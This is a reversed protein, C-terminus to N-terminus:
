VGGRAACATSDARADSNSVGAAAGGNRRAAAPPRGVKRAPILIGDRRFKAIRGAVARATRGLSRAMEPRSASAAHTRVYESEGPQWIRHPGVTPLKGSQLFALLRRLGANAILYVVRQEIAMIEAVRAAPLHQVYLLLLAQKQRDTLVTITWDDGMARALDLIITASTLDGEAASEYLGRYSRLVARVSRLSAFRYDNWVKETEVM